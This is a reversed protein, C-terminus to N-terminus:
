DQQFSCVREVEEFSILGSAAKGLADHLLSQMGNERAARTIELASDGSEIRECIPETVELLEYVGMRGKSGTGRCGDCGEGRMLNASRHGSRSLLDIRSMSPLVDTACDPCVRRVLRQAVSGILTAALSYSKVGYDKLQNIVGVADPSYLTSLVLQGRLASQVALAASEEGAIEGILIVDPDHWLLERFAPGFSVQREGRQVQSQTIGALRHSIPDEITVIKRDSGVISNMAAYLTTTKGSNVPGSVLLLGQPRSICRQVGALQAASFGLNDLRQEFAGHSLIRLVASEGEPVPIVSLRVDYSHDEVYLTGRGGHPGGGGRELGV